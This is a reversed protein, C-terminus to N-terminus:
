FSNYYCPLFVRIEVILISVIILFNKILTSFPHFILKQSYSAQFQCATQKSLSSKSLVKGQRLVFNYASKLM